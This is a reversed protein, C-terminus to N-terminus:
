ESALANVNQPLPADPGAGSADAIQEIMKPAPADSLGLADILSNTAAQTSSNIQNAVAIADDKSDAIVKANSDVLGDPAPLPRRCLIEDVLRGLARVGEPSRLVRSDTSINTGDPLAIATPHSSDLDVDPQSKSWSWFAGALVVGAFVLFGWGGGQGVAILGAGCIVSIAAVIAASVLFVQSRVPQVDVNAKVEATASSGSM